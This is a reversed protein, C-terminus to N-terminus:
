YKTIITKPGSKPGNKPWKQPDWFNQSCFILFGAGNSQLWYIKHVGGFLNTAIDEFSYATNGTSYKFNKAYLCESIFANSCKKPINQSDALLARKSKEEWNKKCLHDYDM